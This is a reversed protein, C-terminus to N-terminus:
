RYPDRRATPEHVRVAGTQLMRELMRVATAPMYWETYGCAACVCADFPGAVELSTDEGGFMTKKGTPLSAGTINFSRLSGQADCYTQQVPSVAYVRKGDCKPCTSTSRM